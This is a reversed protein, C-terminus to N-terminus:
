VNKHYIKVMQNLHFIEMSNRLKANLAFNRLEIQTFIIM